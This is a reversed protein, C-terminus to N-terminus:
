DIPRASDLMREVTERDRDFYHEGPALFLMVYLRGRHVSAQAMGRYVLGDQNATEVGFRVSEGGGDGFSCPQLDRARPRVAGLEVLGDLVLAQLELGDMGERFYPGDPRRKSERRAHFVHDGPEVPGVFQFQNLLTGDRTWLEVRSDGYRSWDVTTHLRISGVATAAGARVLPTPGCASLAVTALAIALCRSSLRSSLTSRLKGNM